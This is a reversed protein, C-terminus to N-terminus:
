QPLLNVHLRYFEGADTINTDTMLDSGGNGARPGAVVSNTWAGDILNHCSNMTYLRNSSSDFYINVEPSMSIRNICFYSASNTPDTDCIYEEASTLSDADPNNTEAQDFTWGGNTLGHAAIWWHPTGQTALIPNFQAVVSRNAIVNTLILPNDTGLYDGTWGTFEYWAPALATVPISTGGSVVIQTVSTASNVTAGLTSDTQFTCLFSPSVPATSDAVITAGDHLTGVHSNTSADAVTLTGTADNFPWYAVLGDENGLLSRRMTDQIQTQTRAVRWLRIEDLQGNYNNNGTWPAKGIYFGLDSNYISNTLPSSSESIGNIYVTMNTGDYVGAIHTWASIPVISTSVVGYEGSDEPAVNYAVRRPFGRETWHTSAAHFRYSFWPNADTQNLQKGMIVSWEGGGGFPNVWVEMTMPATLKMM